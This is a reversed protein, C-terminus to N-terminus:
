AAKALGEEAKAESKAEEKVDKVEEKKEEKVEAKDAAGTGPIPELPGPTFSKPHGGLINRRNPTPEGGKM